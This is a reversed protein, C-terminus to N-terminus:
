GWGIIDVNKGIEQCPRVLVALSLAGSKQKDLLNNKIDRLNDADLDAIEDILVIKKKEADLKNLFGKVSAIKSQGQSLKNIPILREEDSLFANKEINFFKIKHLRGDYLITGFQSGLYEGVSKMFIEYDGLLNVGLKDKNALIEQKTEAPRCLFDTWQNIKERLASIKEILCRLEKEKHEYLPKNGANEELISLSEEYKEKLTKESKIEVEIDHLRATLIKPDGSVSKLEEWQDILKAKNEQLAAQLALYQKQAELFQTEVEDFGELAKRKQKLQGIKQQVKNQATLAIKKQDITRNLVKALSSVRNSSLKVKVRYLAKKTEGVNKDFVPVVINEDYNQFISLLDDVIHLAATEDSNQPEIRELLRYFESYDDNLLKNTDLSVDYTRLSNALQLITVNYERIEKEIIKVEDYNKDIKRELDKDVKGELQDYKEKLDQYKRTITFEKNLLDMKQKIEYKTEVRKLLSATKTLESECIEKKQQHTQIEREFNRHKKQFDRYEVIDLLNKNLRGYIEFLRKEINSFYGALKNRSASVVKSPDDETLFILDFKDNFSELSIPKSNLLRTTAQGAKKEILLEVHIPNSYTIRFLYELSSNKNLEDLTKKLSPKTELEKEQNLYGLALALVNLMTTKGTGNKGQIEILNSNIIPKINAPPFTFPPENPRHYGPELYSVRFEFM